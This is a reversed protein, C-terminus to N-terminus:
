TGRGAPPDPSDGDQEVWAVIFQGFAPSLARGLREFCPALPLLATGPPTFACTEVHPKGFVALCRRLSQATFFHAKDFLPSNQLKRKVGLLSHANLAGIVLRGGPKLCRHMERMVLPHDGTFELTAICCVIDFLCDAFPLRHADARVLPVESRFKAKAAQLMRESLDLGIVEYGAMRLFLLWHGTGCGVDLLLGKNAAVPLARKVAAKEYADITQNVPSDYWRDYSSAVSDFRDIVAQAV